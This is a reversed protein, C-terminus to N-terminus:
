ERLLGLILSSIVQEVPEDEDATDSSDGFLSPVLSDLGLIPGRETNAPTEAATTPGELHRIKSALYTREREVESRSEHDIGCSSYLKGMAMEFQSQIKMAKTHREAKSMLTVELHSLDLHCRAALRRAEAKFNCSQKSSSSKHAIEIWDGEGNTEIELGGPIEEGFGSGSTIYVYPLNRIQLSELSM